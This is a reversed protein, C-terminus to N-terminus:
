PGPAPPAGPGGVCSARHRRGTGAVNTVASSPPPAPGWQGADSCSVGEVCEVADAAATVEFRIVLSPGMGATIVLDLRTLPLPSVARGAVFRTQPGEDSVRLCPWSHAQMSRQKAVYTRTPQCPQSRKAFTVSYSDRYTKRECPQAAARPCPQFFPSSTDSFNLLAALEAPSLGLRASAHM